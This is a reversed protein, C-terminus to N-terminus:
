GTLWEPTADLGRVVHPQKKDLPNRVPPKITGSKLQRMLGQIDSAFGPQYPSTYPPGDKAKWAQGGEPWAALAQLLLTPTGGPVGETITQLQRGWQAQQKESLTGRDIQLLACVADLPGDTYASAGGAAAPITSSPRGKTRRYCEANLGLVDGGKGYGLISPTEPETQEQAPPSAVAAPAKEMPKKKQTEKNNDSLVGQGTTPCCVEQQGVVGTNDSLVSAGRARNTRKRNANDWEARRQQLGDLDIQNYDDQIEFLQGDQTPDGVKLLIGFQHLSDLAKRVAGTSLGCGYCLRNGKADTKGDVFVSLSIRAQRDAIKTQWGYIERIAKNLVKEEEPTLYYALLDIYANPHQFSNPILVTM